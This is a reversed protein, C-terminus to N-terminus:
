HIVPGGEPIPSPTIEGVAVCHALFACANLCRRTLSLIGAADNARKDLNDIVSSTGEEKLSLGLEDLIKVLDRNNKQLDRLNVCAKHWIDPQDMQMIQSGAVCLNNILKAITKAQDPSFKFNQAM